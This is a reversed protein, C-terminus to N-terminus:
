EKIKIYGGDIVSDESALIYEDPSVGDIVQVGDPLEIGTEIDRRVALGSKFVYVFEKGNEDANVSEYPLVSLNQQESTLIKVKATYGSRINEDANTFRIKTEVVTEQATGMYQKKAASSIEEVVGDYVKGGFGSGTIRVPQGVKVKSINKESVFASVILDESGILNVVPSGESLYDGNGANVSDVTGSVPSSLKEPILALIDEYSTVTTGAGMLALGSYKGSQMLKRATETINVTAVTEGESVQQGRVALVEDLVLPIDASVAKADKQKVEGSASVSDTYKVQRLQVATAEPLYNELIGPLFGAFVAMGFILILATIKKEYGCFGKM